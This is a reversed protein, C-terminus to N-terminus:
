STLKRRRRRFTCGLGALGILVLSSPEPIIAANYQAQIQAPTLASNYVSIGALGGTFIEDTHGSGPSQNGFTFNTTPVQTQFTGAVTGVLSGNVYFSADNSADVVVGVYQWQNPLVTVGTTFYDQRSFTTFVLRGGDATGFGYGNLGDGSAVIRTTRTLSLASPNIWAEITYGNAGLNLPTPFSITGGNFDAVLGSGAVWSPGAIGRPTVGLGFTGDFGNITSDNATAPLGLADNLIWFGAPNDGLVQSIFDARTPQACAFTLGISLMPLCRRMTRAANQFQDMPRPSLLGPRTNQSGFSEHLLFSVALHTGDIPPLLALLPPYDCRVKTKHFNRRSRRGSIEVLQRRFNGVVLRPSSSLRRKRFAPASVTTMKVPLGASSRLVDKSCERRLVGMTCSTHAHLAPM